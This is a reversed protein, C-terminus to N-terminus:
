PKVGGGEDVERKFTDEEEAERRREGGVEGAGVVVM